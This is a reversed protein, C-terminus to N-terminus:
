GRYFAEIGWDVPFFFVDKNGFTHISLDRCPFFFALCDVSVSPRVPPVRALPVSGAVHSEDSLARDTSHAHLEGGGRYVDARLRYLPGDPWEGGPLRPRRVASVRVCLM